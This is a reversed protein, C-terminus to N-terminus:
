SIDVRGTANVKAVLAAKLAEFKEPENAKMLRLGAADETAWKDYDWAERGEPANGTKISNSIVPAPTLGELISKTNAHDAIALKIFSDRQGASIRREKIANDVLTEAKEKTREAQVENLQKTLAEVAASNVEPTKELEMNKIQAGDVGARNGPAPPSTYNKIIVKNAAEIEDNDVLPDGDPDAQIGDIFKCKLAENADMWTTKAMMELCSAKEMGTKDCYMKCANELMSTGLKKLGDMEGISADQMSLTPEHIMLQANPAMYAKACAMLILSAMSAAMGTVYGCTEIGKANLSTIINCIHNGDWMSGGGSNIFFNIKKVGAKVLSDVEMDFAASSIDKGILGYLKINASQANANISIKYWGKL